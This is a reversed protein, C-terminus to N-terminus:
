RKTRLDEPLYSEDVLKSWDPDEKMTGILRQARIMNNMGDWDFKGNMYYPPTTSILRRIISEILEVPLEWVKSVIKASEKPDAKLFEVAKRHAALIGRVQNPKELAFKRSVIGVGQALTPLVDNEWALVRYKGLNKSITPDGVIMIDIGGSELLALGEGFGGTRVLKMDDKTLGLKELLLTNKAETTSQPNTFGLRRGKIDKISKIPSNPMTIWGMDGRSTTQSVIRLDAGRQIALVAAATASSAFPLEGALMNRITSGGGRSARAGTIDAGFEKYFGKALAIAYPFGTCETGYFPVEIEAAMVATVHLGMFLILLPIM